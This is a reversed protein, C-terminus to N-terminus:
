SCRGPDTKLLQSDRLEDLFEEDTVYCSTGNGHECFDEV